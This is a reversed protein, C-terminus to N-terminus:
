MGLAEEEKKTHRHKAQKLQTKKKKKSGGILSHGVAQRSVQPGFTTTAAQRELGASM